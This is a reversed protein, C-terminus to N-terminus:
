QRQLDLRMRGFDITVKFKKLFNEGLIGAAREGASGAYMPLTKFMGSWADVGVEVDDVKLGSKMSGGLGQMQATHMGSAGSLPAQAGNLFTVESGTDLILLFWGKRQIVGRVYPRFGEIFLNQREDVVRDSPALRTFTVSGASFDLETRLEKLFNAGLLMEMDVMERAGAMFRMKETPMIAVPVDLVTMGGLQLSEIVGFEVSIPEGLLGFFQGRVTGLRRVPIQDALKRSIISLVAGSDIIATISRGNVVAEIRPVDPKGIEMPLTTKNAAPFRYAHVTSLAELYDLHWQMVRIGRAQAAKAWDLSEAYNNQMYEVQSLCWAASAYTDRRPELELSARLRRRAEDYRGAALLASGLAAMDAASIAPQSALASGQGIAAIYDNKRISEHLDAGRAIQGASIALPRVWVDNYLACGSLWAMAAAQVAFRKICRHSM